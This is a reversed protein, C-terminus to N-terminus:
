DMKGNEMMVKAMQGFIDEMVKHNEKIISVKMHPGMLFSNSGKEKKLIMIGAEKMFEVM